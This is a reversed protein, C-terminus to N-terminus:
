KSGFATCAVIPIEPITEEKIMENIKLTAEIGNLIPM